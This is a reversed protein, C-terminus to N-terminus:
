ANDLGPFYQGAAYKLWVSEPVCLEDDNEGEFVFCFQADHHVLQPVRVTCISKSDYAYCAYYISDWAEYFKKEKVTGSHPPNSCAGLLLLAAVALLKKM